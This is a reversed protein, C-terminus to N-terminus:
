DAYKPTLVRKGSAMRPTITELKVCPWLELYGGVTANLVRVDKRNRRLWNLACIHGWFINRNAYWASQEYGHEYEPSFHSPKGDHYGLDCGVLVLDDFGMTVALQLAMNVSGGFACLEPLHWEDQSKAPDDYNWQHHSCARIYHVNPHEGIDAQFWRSIFCEIGLKINTQISPIFKEKPVALIDAGEIEPKGERNADFGEPRVYYTPRWRTSPYILDIRNCSFSVYNKILDLNTHNLSPGCGVIFARPM